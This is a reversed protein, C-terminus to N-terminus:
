NFFSNNLRSATASIDSIMAHFDAARFTCVDSLSKLSAAGTEIKNTLELVQSRLEDITETMKERDERAIRLEQQLRELRVAQQTAQTELSTIEAKCVTLDIDIREVITPYNSGFPNRRTGTAGQAPPPQDTRNNSQLVTSSLDGHEVQEFDMIVSTSASEDDTELSVSDATAFRRLLPPAPLAMAGDVGAPETTLEVGATGIDSYRTPSTLATAPGMGIPTDVFDISDTRPRTPTSDDEIEAASARTRRTHISHGRSNSRTREMQLRARERAARTKPRAGILVPMDDMSKSRDM